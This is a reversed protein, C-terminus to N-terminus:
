GFRTVASVIRMSRINLFEQGYATKKLSEMYSSGGTSNNQQLGFSRSLDGEKESVISGATLEATTAGQQSIINQLTLKHAILYALAQNYLNGFKSVSITPAVIDRMALVMTDTVDQLDPALTRFLAIFKEDNM